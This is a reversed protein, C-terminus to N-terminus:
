GVTQLLEHNGEKQILSIHKELVAERRPRGTGTLTGEQMTFPPVLHFIKIHAYEPLAKNASSVSQEIDATENVPVILASLYPQADGYVIAQSIQPQALLASEVWEPSINRGFSTILVNKKRGDIHLSGNEDVHGLDGTRFKGKHPEGLYGLFAPNKIKIERRCIELEIHPLVKGVSGVRDDQPTNLSVVSACESLGYGEYVPLGLARAQQILEPATKSGGVAVFKLLPLELKTQAITQMLGRLLEPVLILSTAKEKDIIHVLRTFEPHFPNKFGIYSLNHVCATGGALLTTYIGAINELLVALPLVSFHREAMDAGLLNVLELALSEMSTQPLCVGKPAGTTGSTFTIKATGDPIIGSSQIGTEQLGAPTIIHTIGAQNVVHARQQENFFPPIPVCIVGTKIAALDWLVWEPGNDLAIGLVKIGYLNAAVQEIAHSLEGYTYTKRYCTLAVKDPNHKNIAELILSM